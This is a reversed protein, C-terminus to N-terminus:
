KRKDYELEEVVKAKVIASYPVFHEGHDTAIMVGNKETNRLYGRMRKDKIDVEVLKGMAWLYHEPRKLPREVGPSSVELTYRFTMIDSHDLDQSILASVKRCDEVTISGDARDIFVTLVNSVKNFHLDYFRFGADDVITRVLESVKKVDIDSM